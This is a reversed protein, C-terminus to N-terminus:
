KLAAAIEESSRVRGMIPFVQRVAFEHMETSMGSMADEAFVVSYGLDFGERATSEVGFNTAIGAMVITKVGRRRLAQDLQTGYFAGWQKKEVLIDDEKVGSEPVLESMEKPPPPSGAASFPRDVEHRIVEHLLVRVYAVPAGAKRFAEALVASRKVVDAAAHPKTDRGVIGQQLDILVLATTKADLVLDM